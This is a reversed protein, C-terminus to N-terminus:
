EGKNVWNPWSLGPERDRIDWIHQLAGLMDGRNYSIGQPERLRQKIAERVQSEVAECGAIFLPFVIGYSVRSSSSIKSIEDVVTQAQRRIFPTTFPLGHIRAYLLLLGAAYMSENLALVAAPDACRLPSKSAAIDCERAHLIMEEAASVQNSWSSDPQEADEDGLLSLQRELLRGIRLLPNVLRPSFAFIPHCVWSEFAKYHRQNIENDSMEILRCAQDGLPNRPQQLSCLTAIVSWRFESLTVESSSLSAIQHSEWKMMFSAVLRSALRLYDHREPGFYHLLTAACITSLINGDDDTQKTMQSRIARVSESCALRRTRTFNQRGHRLQYQSASFCLIAGRLSVNSLAMQPLTTIYPHQFGYLPGADEWDLCLFDLEAVSLFYQWLFRREPSVLMDDPWPMPCYLRDPVFAPLYPHEIIAMATANVTNPVPNHTVEVADQSLIPLATPRDSIPYSTGLNIGSATMDQGSDLFELLSATSYAFPASGASMDGFQIESAVSLFSSQDGVSASSDSGPTALSTEADSPPVEATDALTGLDDQVNQSVPSLIDSSQAAKFLSPTSIKFTQPQCNENHKVCQSCQPHKHDCQAYVRRKKRACQSCAGRRRLMPM